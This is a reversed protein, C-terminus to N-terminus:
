PCTKSMGTLAADIMSEERQITARGLPTAAFLRAASNGGAATINGRDDCMVVQSLAPAGGVNQRGLGAASFSFYTADNAVAFTVGEDIAPRALLISENVGGTAINGDTDVFVIYGQDWTGGCDAAATMSNDSACITINTKARSAESRALHFASHFDNATGTMRSNQNFQRMNPVGFALIVGVILVTVMLEYLSFGNQTTKNM